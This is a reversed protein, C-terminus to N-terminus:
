ASYFPWLCYPVMVIATAVAGASVGFVVKKRIGLDVDPDEIFQMGTGDVDWVSARELPHAHLKAAIYMATLAVSLLGIGFIVRRKREDDDINTLTRAAKSRAEAIEADTREARAEESMPWAVGFMDKYGTNPKFYVQLPFISHESPWTVPGNPPPKLSETRDGTFDELKVNTRLGAEEAWKAVLSKDGVTSEM